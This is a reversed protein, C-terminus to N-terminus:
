HACSLLMILHFTIHPLLDLIFNDSNRTIILDLTHGDRHTPDIVHQKLHSSCLLERFSVIHRDSIDEYHFNLDRAILVFEPRLCVSEIISPFEKLFLSTTQKKGKTIQPRYMVNLRLPIQSTASILLEIYEFSLYLILFM